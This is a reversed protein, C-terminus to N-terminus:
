KLVMAPIFNSIRIDFDSVFEFTWLVFNLFSFSYHNPFTTM